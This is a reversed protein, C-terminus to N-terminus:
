WGKSVLSIQMEPEVHILVEQIRVCTFYSVDFITEKINSVM